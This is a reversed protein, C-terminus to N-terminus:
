RGGSDGTALEVPPKAALLGPPLDGATPPVPSVGFHDVGSHLAAAAMGSLDQSTLWRSSADEFARLELLVPAAPRFKKGDRPAGNAPSELHAQTARWREVARQGLRRIRRAAAAATSPPETGAAVITLDYEAATRSYDQAHAADVGAGAVVTADIM